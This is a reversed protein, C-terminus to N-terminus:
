KQNNRTPVVKLRNSAENNMMRTVEPVTVIREIIVKGYVNEMINM